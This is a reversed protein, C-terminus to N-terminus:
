ILLDFVLDVVTVLNVFASCAPTHRRFKKIDMDWHALPNKLFISEYMDLLDLFFIKSRQPECEFNWKNWYLDAQKM